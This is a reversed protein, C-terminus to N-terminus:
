NLTRHKMSTFDLNGGSIVCGVRAGRPLPIAGALLAAVPAAGAGEVVLKTRELMWIVADFIRAENVTVFDDVFARAADFTYAGVSRTTIGDVLPGISDLTVVRGAAVSAKMKAAGAAEVGVIRIGPKVAKMAMACGSILGGGGIPVLVIDLDPADEIFELGVGGQGAILWPDDYAHLYTLGREATLRQAHAYGEEWTKGAVIVEVGYGRTADIKARTTLESMVITAPIGLICAARAVGQAHNGASFCILGRARDAATMNAIVNFPGRAKFSGTKQLNEAKMLVRHGTARDLMDSALVPTRHVHPAIHREARKFDDYTLVRM